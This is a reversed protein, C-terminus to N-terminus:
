AERPSGFPSSKRPHTEIIIRVTVPISSLMELIGAHSMRNVVLNPISKLMLLKRNM